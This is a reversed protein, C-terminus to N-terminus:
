KKRVFTQQPLDKLLVKVANENNFEIIVNSQINGDGDFNLTLKAKTRSSLIDKIAAKIYEKNIPMDGSEDIDKLIKQLNSIVINAQYEDM